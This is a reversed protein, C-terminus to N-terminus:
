GRKIVRSGRFRHKDLATAKEFRTLGYRDTGEGNPPHELALDIRVCTRNNSEFGQKEGARPRVNRGEPLYGRWFSCSQLSPVHSRKFLSYTSKAGYLPDVTRWDDVSV